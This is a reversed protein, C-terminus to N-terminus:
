VFCGLIGIRTIAYIMGLPGFVKFKGSILILAESVVGFAPLVLIYITTFHDTYIIHNISKLCIHKITRTHLHRTSIFFM